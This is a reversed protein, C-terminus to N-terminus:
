RSGCVAAREAMAAGLGALRPRQALVPGCSTHKSAVIIRAPSILHSIGGRRTM